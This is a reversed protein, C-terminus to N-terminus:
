REDDRQFRDFEHNTLNQPKQGTWRAAELNERETSKRQSQKILESRRNYLSAQLRELEALSRKELEYSSTNALNWISSDFSNIRKIEDVLNVIEGALKSKRYTDEQVVPINDPSKFLNRLNDLIGM